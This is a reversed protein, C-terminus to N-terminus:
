FNDYFKFLWGQLIDDHPIAVSPADCRTSLHRRKLPIMEGLLNTRNLM